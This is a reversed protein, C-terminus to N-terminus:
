SSPQYVPDGTRFPRHSKRKSSCVMISRTRLASIFFPNQIVSEMPLYTFRPNWPSPILAQWLRGMCGNGDTLPHIFKLKYHFPCGLVLPHGGRHAALGALGEDPKSRAQHATGFSHPKMKDPSKFQNADGTELMKQTVPKIGQKLIPLATRKQTTSTAAAILCIRTNHILLSFGLGM